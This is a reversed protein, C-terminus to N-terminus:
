FRDDSSVEFLPKPFNEYLLKILELHFRECPFIKKTGTLYISFNAAADQLVYIQFYLSIQLYFLSLRM